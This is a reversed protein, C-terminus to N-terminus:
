RKSSEGHIYGVFNDKWFYQVRIAEFKKWCRQVMKPFQDRQGTVVAIWKIAEQDRGLSTACTELGATECTKM